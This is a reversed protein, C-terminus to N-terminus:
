RRGNELSEGQESKPFLAIGGDRRSADMAMVAFYPSPDKITFRGDSGTRISQRPGSPEMVGLNGWILRVNEPKSVDYPKGDRDWSSGNARWFHGVAAGAVPRGARDVVRRRIERPGDARVSSIIVLLVLASACIPPKTPMNTM